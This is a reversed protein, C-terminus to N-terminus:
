CGVSTQLHKHVIRKGPFAATHYSILSSIMHLGTKNNHHILLLQLLSDDGKFTLNMGIFSFLSPLLLIFPIAIACHTFRRRFLMKTFRGGNGIIGNSNKPARCRACSPRVAPLSFPQSASSIYTFKSLKLIPQQLSFYELKQKM